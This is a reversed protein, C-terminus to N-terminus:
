GILIRKDKTESNKCMKSSKGIEVKIRMIELIEDHKQM